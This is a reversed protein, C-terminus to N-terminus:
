TSQWFSLITYEDIQFNCSPLLIQQQESATCLLNNIFVRKHYKM